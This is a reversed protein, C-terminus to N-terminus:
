RGNFVGAFLAVNNAEDFIFFQFPHDFKCLPSPRFAMRRMTVATAAAAETGEEDVEIVAKHIVSSIRLDKTGTMNSFDAKADFADRMGMQQLVENLTISFEFKFKVARTQVM